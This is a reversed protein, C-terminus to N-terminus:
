EEVKADKTGAVLNVVDDNDSDTAKDDDDDDDVVAGFVDAAVVLIGAHFDRKVRTAM